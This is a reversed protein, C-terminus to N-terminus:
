GGPGKRSWAQVLSGVAVIAFGAFFIAFATGILPPPGSTPDSSDITFLAYFFTGMGGVCLVFGITILVGSVGRLRSQEAVLGLLARRLAEADTGTYIRDGIYIDRGSEIPVNYKGVQVVNGDGHVGLARLAKMERDSLSGAAIRDLIATEVDGEAM